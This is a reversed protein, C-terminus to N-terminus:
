SPTSRTRRANGRGRTSPVFSTESLQFSNLEALTQHSPPRFSWGGYISTHCM